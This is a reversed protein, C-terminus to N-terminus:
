KTQKEARKKARKDHKKQNRSRTDVMREFRIREMTDRIKIEEAIKMEAELIQQKIKEQKECRTKEQDQEISIVLTHYEHYNLFYGLLKKRYFGAMIMKNCCATPGITMIDSSPNQPMIDGPYFSRFSCYPFEKTQIDGGREGNHQDVQGHCHPCKGKFYDYAGM